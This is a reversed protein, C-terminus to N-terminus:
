TASRLAVRATWEEDSIADASLDLAGPVSYASGPTLVVSGIAM